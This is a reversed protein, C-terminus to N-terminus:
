AINEYKPKLIIKKSHEKNQMIFELISYSGEAFYLALKTEERM